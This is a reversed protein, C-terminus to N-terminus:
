RGSRWHRHGVWGPDDYEPESGVTGPDYGSGVVVVSDGYLFHSGIQSQLPVPFYRYRCAACRYPSLVNCQKHGVPCFKRSPLYEAPSRAGQAELTPRLENLAQEIQQTVQLTNAGYQSSVMLVVGAKGMVAAASNPPEPAEVVRAVDGLTIVAGNRQLVVTKALDEPTLSAGKTQLVIRQNETDIFGSGRIGTARRAATLVDEIALNNTVLLDPRIQIQLQRTDGGFVAVKAVGPLALLRQKVTWDALTRLEMLSLSDSTMGVALVISASSTLPTMVPAQVGQPLQGAVTSLREAVVQRDRYIDSGVQFSVTIVSLGQISGSRLSEIGPVGHIANEIPQTVLVEVQEPALGLAETQIVVQPPAFEPFVDYKAHSLTYLGYGTFVCALAIVIGRFRLSLTIIKSLM